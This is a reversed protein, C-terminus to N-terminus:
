VGNITFGINPSTSQTGTIVCNNANNLNNQSLNCYAGINNIILLNNTNTLEGITFILKIDYVMNNVTNLTFKDTTNDITISGVHLIANFQGLQSDVINLTLNTLGSYTVIPSSIIIGNYYINCKIDTISFSIPSSYNITNVIGSVFIGVSTQINFKYTPKDIYQRIGLLTLLSENRIKFVIDNYPNTNWKADNKEDLISYSRVVNYNYLPVTPDEYLYMTPGPVGSSSTPIPISNNASCDVTNNNNKASNVIEYQPITRRQYIGSVLQVWRESKTFNNTKSNTNSASYKLIEAKRRMNLQFQTFAPYPSVPTYRTPPMNLLQMKRRQNFIRENTICNPDTM